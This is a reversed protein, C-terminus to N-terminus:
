DEAAGIEAKTERFRPPLNELERQIKSILGPLEAPNLAEGWFYVFSEESENHAELRRRLATFKERLSSFKEAADQANNERMDFVQKVAAGLERMFFSHDNDLNLITKEVFESDPIGTEPETQRRSRAARLIAPFLHLNEARIHMALRAWFFDLHRHVEAADGKDLASFLRDLLADLEFHDATLLDKM